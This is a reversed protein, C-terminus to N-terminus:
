AFVANDTDAGAMFDVEVWAATSAEAAWEATFGVWARTAARPFAIFMVATISDESRVGMDRRRVTHGSVVILGEQVLAMSGMRVIFRKGTTCAPEAMFDTKVM